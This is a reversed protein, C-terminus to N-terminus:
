CGAKYNYIPKLISLIEVTDQIKSIIEDMPKYVMPSEDLTSEHISTSFIGQMSKKYEAMSVKDKAEGRSLLRGAGHPASLNWDANGKGCALISGDRMNLPIIVMKDKTASIAGKRIVKDTFDIYNHISEISACSKFKKTFFGEILVQAMINRNISAYQQTIKMDEIYELGENNVPMYEFNNFAGAGQFKNKLYNKARQHHFECVLLGLYRSGSHIILWVNEEKDRALEIFHNGGGLTGIAKIIRDYDKLGVKEILSQLEPKLEFYKDRRSSNIERGAPINERLYLDFEPLSFNVNGINYASVGCGIDVGIVKPCIFENLKMTFGVVVGSGVHADPMIRIETNAFAPINLIQYIQSLTENDINETYIKATNYRGTIEM